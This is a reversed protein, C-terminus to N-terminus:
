LPDCHPQGTRFDIPDGFADIPRLTNNTKLDTKFKALFGNSLTAPGAGQVSFTDVMFGSYRRAKATKSVRLQNSYLFTYEQGANDTATGSATSSNTVTTVKRRKKTWTVSTLTGTGSLTTGPQLNPCADSRIEFTVDVTQMQRQAPQALASGPLLLAIVAVAAPVLRKVQFV